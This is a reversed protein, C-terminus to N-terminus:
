RLLELHLWIGTLQGHTEIDIKNKVFFKGKGSVTFTDQVNGGSKFNASSKALASWEVRDTTIEDSLIRIGKPTGSFLAINTSALTTTTELLAGGSIASEVRNVVVATPNSDVLMDIASKQASAEISM